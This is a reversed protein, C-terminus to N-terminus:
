FFPGCYLWLCAVMASTPVTLALGFSGSVMGMFWGQQLYQWNYCKARWIEALSNLVVICAFEASVGRCFQLKEKLTPYGVASKSCTPSPKAPLYGKQQTMKKFM